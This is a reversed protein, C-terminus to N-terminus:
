GEAAATEVRRSAHWLWGKLPASRPPQRRRWGLQHSTLIVVSTTGDVDYDGYILIKQGRPHKGCARAFLGRMDRM